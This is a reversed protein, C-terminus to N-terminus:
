QRQGGYHGAILHAALIGPRITKTSSYCTCEPWHDVAARWRMSAEHLVENTNLTDNGFLPEDLQVAARIRPAEELKAAVDARNGHAAHGQM